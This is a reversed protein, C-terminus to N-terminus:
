EAALSITTCTQGGFASTEMSVTEMSVM